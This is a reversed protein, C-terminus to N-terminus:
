RVAKNFESRRNRCWASEDHGDVAPVEEGYTITVMRDGSIGVQILYDRVALARKEGLTLNYEQTGREDCHGEIQIIAGPFQKIKSANENLTQIADSRLVFSDYDFYVNQLGSEKDWLLEDINLAPLGEGTTVEAERGFSDDDALLDPNIPPKKKCGVTAALVIALCVVGARMGWKTMAKEM